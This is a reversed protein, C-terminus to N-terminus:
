ILEKEIALFEPIILTGKAHDTANFVESDSSILLKPIWVINAGGSKIQLAGQNQYGPASDRIAIVDEIEVMENNSHNSSWDDNDDRSNRHYNEHELSKGRSEIKPM